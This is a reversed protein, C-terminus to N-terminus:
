NPCATLGEPTTDPGSIKLSKLGLRALQELGKGTVKTYHLELAELEPLKAIQALGADTIPTRIFSLSRLKKLGQVHELCADTLKPCEQFLLAPVDPYEKLKVLADDTLQPSRVEIAVLEEPHQEDMQLDVVDEFRVLPGSDSKGCGALLLLLMAWVTWGCAPVTWRVRAAGETHMLQTRLILALDDSAIRFVDFETSLSDLRNYCDRRPFRDAARRKRAILLSIFVPPV